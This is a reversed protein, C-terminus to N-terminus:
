EPTLHALKAQEGYAKLEAHFFRNFDAPSDAVPLVGLKAFRDLLAPDQEPKACM